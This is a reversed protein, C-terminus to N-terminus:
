LTPNVTHKFYFLLFSIRRLQQLLVPLREPRASTCFTWSNPINPAAQRLKEVRLKFANSQPSSGSTFCLLFNKRWATFCINKGGDQGEELDRDTKKRGDQTRRARLWHRSEGGGEEWGGKIHWQFCRKFTQFCPSVKEIPGSLGGRERESECVCLMVYKSLQISLQNQRFTDTHTHLCLSPHQSRAHFMQMIRRKLVIKLLIQVYGRM